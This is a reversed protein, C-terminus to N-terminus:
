PIDGCLQRLAPPRGPSTILSRLADRVTIRGTWRRSDRAVFPRLGSDDREVPRAEQGSGRLGTQALLRGALRPSKGM